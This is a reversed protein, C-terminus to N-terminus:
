GGVGVPGGRATYGYYCGVLVILVRGVSNIGSRPAIASSTVARVDTDCPLSTVVKGVFGSVGTDRNVSVILPPLRPNSATVSLRQEAL